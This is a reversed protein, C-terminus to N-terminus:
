ANIGKGEEGAPELAEPEPQAIGVTGGATWSIPAADYMEPVLRRGPAPTQRDADGVASSQGSLLGLGVGVQRRVLLEQSLEHEDHRARERTDGLNAGTGGTAEGSRELGDGVLLLGRLEVRRSRFCVQVVLVVVYSM